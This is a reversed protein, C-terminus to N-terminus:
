VKLLIHSARIQTGRFLDRHDNLFKRLTAETAKSKLYESWRVRDEFTKRLEDMSTNSQLLATALDQGDQKLQQKLRDIEEDIKEAPTPVNQRSLFMMLLKTNVLQDVAERYITERSEDGLPYRSLYNIIEGKTVKDSKNGVTITALVDNQGPITAPRVVAPSAANPSPAASPSPAQARVVDAALLSAAFLSLSFFRFLRAM